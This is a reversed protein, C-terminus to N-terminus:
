SSCVGYNKDLYQENSAHHVRRHSPTVLIYKWFAWNALLAPISLFPYLGHVILISTIM